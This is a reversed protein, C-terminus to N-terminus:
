DPLLALRARSRAAAAAAAGCCRCCHCCLLLPLAAHLCRCRPLPQLLAPLRRWRLCRRGRVVIVLPRGTTLAMDRGFTLARSATEPLIALAGEEDGGELKEKLAAM